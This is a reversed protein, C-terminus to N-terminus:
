HWMIRITSNDDTIQGGTQLLHITALHHSISSLNSNTVLLFDCIPKLIVYFDHSQIVKFLWLASHYALRAINHSFPLDYPIPSLVMPYPAPLQSYATVLLWTEMQLPKPAVKLLFNWAILPRIESITFSLALTVILWAYQREFLM